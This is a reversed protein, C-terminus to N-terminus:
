IIKNISNLGRVGGKGNRTEILKLPHQPQVPVPMYSWTDACYQWSNRPSTEGQTNYSTSLLFVVATNNQEINVWFISPLNEM